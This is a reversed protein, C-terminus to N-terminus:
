AKEYARWWLGINAAVLLDLMKLGEPEIILKGLKAQRGRFGGGAREQGLTLDVRGDENIMFSPTEDQFDVNVDQRSHRLHAFYSSPREEPSTLKTNRSSAPLNFRLESVDITGRDPCSIRCNLSKGAAGTFFECQGGWPSSFAYGRTRRDTIPPRDGSLKALAQNHMAKQRMEESSNSDISSQKRHGYGHESFRSGPMYLRRRFIGEPIGESSTTSTSNRSGPHNDVGIFPAYGPNTIDLYLPSGSKKTLRSAPPNLLSASSVDHIPPDHISAVNWQESSGPERRILTLSGLNNDTCNRSTAHMTSQHDHFYPNNAESHDSQKLLRLNENHLSHRHSLPRPPIEPLDVESPPNTTIDKVKSGVPKRTIMRSPSKPPSPPPKDFMTHRFGPVPKRTPYPPSFPPSVPSSSRQITNVPKRKVGSESLFVTPSSNENNPPTPQHPAGSMDWDDASNVHVYYLSSQIDEATVVRDRPKMPTLFVDRSGPVRAIYLTLPLGPPPVPAQSHLPPNSAVSTIASLSAAEVSSRIHPLTM